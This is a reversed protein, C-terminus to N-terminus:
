YLMGFLRGKFSDSDNDPEVKAFKGRSGTSLSQSEKESVSAQSPTKKGNTQAKGQLLYLAGGCLSKCSSVSADMRM